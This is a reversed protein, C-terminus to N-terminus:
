YFIQLYDSLVLGIRMLSFQFYPNYSQKHTEAIQIFVCVDRLKIIDPEYKCIVVRIKEQYKPILDMKEFSQYFHVTIFVRHIVSQWRKQSLIRTREKEKERLPFIFSLVFPPKNHNM